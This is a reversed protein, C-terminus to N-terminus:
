ETRSVQLWGNATLSPELYNWEGIWLDNQHSLKAEIVAGWSNEFIFNLRRETILTVTIANSYFDVRPIDGVVIEGESENQIYLKVDYTGYFDESNTFFAGEYVKPLSPLSEITPTSSITVLTRPITAEVEIIPTATVESQGALNSGLSSIVYLCVLVGGMLTIGLIMSKWKQKAILGIREVMDALFDRISQFVSLITSTETNADVLVIGFAVAWSEVAWKAADESLARNRQLRIIFKKVWIQTHTDKISLLDRPIKEESAAVLVNIERKSQPFFDRLMGEVRRSNNGLDQGYQEILKVLKKRVANNM